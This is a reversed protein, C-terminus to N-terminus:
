GELRIHEIYRPVDMMELRLTEGGAVLRRDTGRFGLDCRTHGRTALPVPIMDRYTFINDDIDGGDCIVRGEPLGSEIKAGEMILDGCQWWRTCEHSGTMTKIIYVRSFCICLCGDRYSVVGIESGPLEISSSEM